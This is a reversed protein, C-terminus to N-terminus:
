KASADGRVEAQIEELTKKKTEPLFVTVLVFAVICICGFCYLSIFIGFSDKAWGFFQLVAITTLSYGINIICFGIVRMKSPLIESAIINPVTNLGCGYFVTYVVISFLQVFDFGSTDINTAAKIYLYTGELFVMLAVMGLSVLMLPRRGSYDVVMQSFLSSVFFTVFYIITAVDASLFSRSEEFITTAYSQIAMSGSLFQSLCVMLAILFSKRYTKNCFLDGLTEKDDGEEMIGKSIRYLEEVVEGRGNFKQLSAKAALVDKNMLYFYPSEPLFPLFLLTMLSILAGIVTVSTLSGFFFFTNILLMGLVMSLSYTSGLFGRIEPEAIEALYPPFATFFVGDAIGALFRGVFMFAASPAFAMLIWSICLPLTAIIVFRNHGVKHLTAATIVDGLLAGLPMVSVLSYGESNTIEFSYNGSTLIPLARSSWGQHMGLSIMGMNGGIAAFYQFIRFNFKSCDFIKKM